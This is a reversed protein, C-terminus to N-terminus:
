AQPRRRLPRRFERYWDPGMGSEGLRCASCARACKDEAVSLSSPSADDAGDSGGSAGGSDGDAGGTAGAGAGVSWAEAKTAAMSAAQGPLSVQTMTTSQVTRM